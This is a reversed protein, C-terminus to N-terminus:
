DYFSIISEVLKDKIRRAIEEAQVNAGFGCEQATEIIISYALMPDVGLKLVINMFVPYEELLAFKGDALALQVLCSVIFKKNREDGEENIIAIADRLRANRKKPEQVFEAGSDDTFYKNLISHLTKRELDVIGGDAVVMDLGACAVVRMVAEDLKNQPYRKNM